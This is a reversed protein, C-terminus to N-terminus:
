ATRRPVTLVRTTRHHHLAAAALLVLGLAGYPAFGPGGTAPLPAATTDKVTITFPTMTSVDALAGGAGLTVGQTSLTFQIPEALLQFGDPAKTEVLWYTGIALPQSTFKSTDATPNTLAMPFVPAGPAPSASATPTPSPTTRPDYNYLVFEAGPLACTAMNTDCNLGIKEVAIPKKPPIVPVCADNNDAGDTDGPLDVLNFFGGATPNGAGTTDCASASQWTTPTSTTPPTLELKFYFSVSGGPQIPQTGGNFSPKYYWHTATPWGSAGSPYIRSAATM